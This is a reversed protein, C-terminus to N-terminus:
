LGPIEDMETEARQRLAETYPRIEEAYGKALPGGAYVARVYTAVKLYGADAMRDTANSLATQVDESQGIFILRDGNAEDLRRGFLAFQGVSGFGPPLSNEPKFSHDLRLFEGLNMPRGRASRMHTDEELAADTAAAIAAQEDQGSWEM